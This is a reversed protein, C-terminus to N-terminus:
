RDRALAKESEAVLSLGGVWARGSIRGDLKQSRPRAVRVVLLSTEGATRFRLEHCQWITSGIAQTTVVFLQSADFADLVELRVGSDSSLHEARVCGSLVYRRQPEVPVFQYVHSFDPNHKADFELELLRANSAQAAFPANKKERTFNVRVGEVAPMRWDLGGGLPERSFSANNLLNDAERQSVQEPFRAALAQWAASVEIARHARILADFYFLVSSPAFPQSLSLLHAWARAAGDLQQKEVLFALFEIGINPEAPLLERFFVERVDSAEQAARSEAVRWALEFAPRRLKPETFIAARLGRLAKVFLASQEKAAVSEAALSRLYFNGLQWNTQPAHPALQHSKEFASRAERLDGAWEAAAGLDMWVE